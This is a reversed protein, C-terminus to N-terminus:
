QKNLTITYKTAIHNFLKKMSWDNEVALEWLDALLDEQGKEAPKVPFAFLRSPLLSTDYLAKACDEWGTVEFYAQYRAEFEGERVETIGQWDEPRITYTRLTSLHSQYEKMKVQYYTLSPHHGIIVVRKLREPYEPEKMRPQEVLKDGVPHFIPTM